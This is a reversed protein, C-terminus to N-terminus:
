QPIKITDMISEKYIRLKLCTQVILEEFMYFLGIFVSCNPTFTM